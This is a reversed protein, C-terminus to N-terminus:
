RKCFKKESYVYQEAYSKMWLPNKLGEELEVLDNMKISLISDSDLTFVKQFVHQFSDIMIKNERDRNAFSSMIGLIKNKSVLHLCGGIFVDYMSRTSKNEDVKIRLCPLVEKTWKSTYKPVNEMCLPSLSGSTVVSEVRTHPSSSINSFHVRKLRRKKGNESSHEVEGDPQNRKVPPTLSDPSNDVPTTEREM